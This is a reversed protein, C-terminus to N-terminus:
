DIMRVYGSFLVKDEVYGSFLVKDESQGSIFKVKGQVM